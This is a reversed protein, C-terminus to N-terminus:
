SNSFPYEYRTIEKQLWDLWSNICTEKQQSCRMRWAPCNSFEYCASISYLWKAKEETTMTNLYDENTRPKWICDVKNCTKCDITKCFKNDM